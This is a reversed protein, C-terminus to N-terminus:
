PKQIDAPQQDLPCHRGSKAPEKDRLQPCGKWTCDGDDDSKCRTMRHGSPSYHEKPQSVQEGIRIRVVAEASRPHSAGGLAFRLLKDATRAGM